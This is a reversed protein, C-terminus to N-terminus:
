RRLAESRVPAPLDDRISPDSATTERRVARRNRQSEPSQRRVEYFGFQGIVTSYMARFRRDFATLSDDGGELANAGWVIATESGSEELERTMLDQVFKSSQIGPDYTYWRTYPLRRSLLFLIVASRDTMRHSSAVAVFRSAPSAEADALRVALTADAPFRSAPCERLPQRVLGPVTAIPFPGGPVTLFPLWAVLITSIGLARGWRTPVACQLLVAGTALVVAPILHVLDPRFWFYHLFSVALLGCAASARLLPSTRLSGRALAAAATAIGVLLLIFPVAAQGPRASRTLILPISAALVAGVYVLARSARVRTALSWGNAALYAAALTAGTVILQTPQPIDWSVLHPPLLRASIRSHWAPITVAAAYFEGIPIESYRILWCGAASLLGFGSLTIGERLTVRVPEVLLLALFFTLALYIAFGPRVLTLLGLLGGASATAIWSRRRSPAFRGLLFLGLAASTLAFGLFVPLQLVPSVSLIWLTAGGWAALRNKFLFRCEFFLLIALLGLAVCQAARYAVGPNAIGLFPALLGYTLPGYVTYFDTYPLGGAKVIRAGLLLASEDYPGIPYGFLGLSSGVSIAIFGVPGAFRSARLRARLTPFESV